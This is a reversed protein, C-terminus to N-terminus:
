LIRRKSGTKVCIRSREPVFVNSLGSKFRIRSQEQQAALSQISPDNNPVASAVPSDHDLRFGNKFGEVLYKTKTKDYGIAELHFKLREHNVPTVPIHRQAASLPTPPTSPENKASNSHTPQQASQASMDTPVSTSIQAGTDRPTINSATDKQSREQGQTQRM